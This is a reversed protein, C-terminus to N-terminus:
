REQNGDYPHAMGFMLLCAGEDIVHFERQNYFQNFPARVRAEPLDSLNPALEAWLADVDDVDIYVMQERREDDLDADTGLLRVAVRDRFLFAYDPERSEFGVEFGLRDKFFSIEAEIDNCMLFPTVQTLETM